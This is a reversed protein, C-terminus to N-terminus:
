YNNIIQSAYRTSWFVDGNPSIDIKHNNTVVQHLYSTVANEIMTDPVWIIEAPHKKGLTM